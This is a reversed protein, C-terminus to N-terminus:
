TSLEFNGLNDYIEGCELWLWRGWWERGFPLTPDLFQSGHFPFSLSFTISLFFTPHSLHLAPSPPWFHNMITRAHYIPNYFTSLLYFLIHIPKHNLSTNYLYPSFIPLQAPSTLSHYISLSYTRPFVSTPIHHLITHPFFTSKYPTFSCTFQVSPSSSLLTFFLLVHFERNDSPPNVPKCILRPEKEGRGSVIVM